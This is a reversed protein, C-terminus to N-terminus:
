ESRSRFGGFVAHGAKLWYAGAGEFGTEELWRLQDALRAPIDGPDPYRYWNWDGADFRDFAALSGTLEQSQRRVEADWLEAVYAREADSAPAVIDAVLLAGGKELRRFISRFTTWKKADELHHLVLASVFCRVAGPITALWSEDELRFPRVDARKGFPALRERARELMAASGDLAIVQAGEFRKLVKESLWGDGTGVDICWFREDARAPIMRLIAAEIEDRCPTFVRGLDLFTTSDSEQWGTSM